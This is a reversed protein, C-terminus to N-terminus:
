EHLGAVQDLPLVPGGAPRAALRGLRHKLECAGCRLPGSLIRRPPLGKWGCNANRAKALRASRCSACILHKSGGRQLDGRLSAERIRSHDPRELRPRSFPKIGERNLSALERLWRSAYHAFAIRIVFIEPVELLTGARQDSRWLHPPHHPPLLLKARNGCFFCPAAPM